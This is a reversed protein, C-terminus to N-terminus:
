DALAACEPTLRMQQDFRAMVFSLQALPAPIPKNCGTVTLSCDEGIGLVTGDPRRLILIGGDNARSDYGFVSLEKTFSAQVGPANLAATLDGTTVVRADRSCRPIPADCTRAPMAPDVFTRTRTYRAPPAVSASDRSLALGGETAFDFPQPLACAVDHAQAGTCAPADGDPTADCPQDAVLPVDVVGQDAPLQFDLTVIQGGVMGAAADATAYIRIAVRYRGAPPTQTRVCSRGALNETRSSTGSYPVAASEGPAVLQGAPGMCPGCVVGTDKCNTDGCPCGGCAFGPALQDRFGSACSSLGYEVGLCGISVFLPATGTNHFRFETPFPAQATSAVACMGSPALPDQPQDVCGATTASLLGVMVWRRWRARIPITSDHRRLKGPHKVQFRRNLRQGFM